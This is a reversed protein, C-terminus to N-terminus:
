TFCLSSFTAVSQVLVLQEEEAGGGWSDGGRGSSFGSVHPEAGVGAASASRVTGTRPKNIYFDFRSSLKSYVLHHNTEGRSVRKFTSGSNKM